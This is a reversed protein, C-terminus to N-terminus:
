SKELREKAMTLRTKLNEVFIIFNQVMRMLFSFIKLFPLLLPLMGVKKRGGCVRL